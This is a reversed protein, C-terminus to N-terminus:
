QGAEKKEKFVSLWENAEAEVSQYRMSAGAGQINVAFEVVLRRGHGSLGDLLNWYHNRKCESQIERMTQVADVLADFNPIETTPQNFLHLSPTASYGQQYCENLLDLHSVGIPAIERLYHIDEQSMGRNELTRLASQRLEKKEMHFLFHDLGSHLPLSTQNSEVRLTDGVFQVGTVEKKHKYLDRYYLDEKEIYETCEKFAWSEVGNPFPQQVLFLAFLFHFM